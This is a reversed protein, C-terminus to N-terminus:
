VLGTKPVTSATRSSCKGLLFRNPDARTDNSYEGAAYGLRGRQGRLSKVIPAQGDEGARGVEGDRDDVAAQM